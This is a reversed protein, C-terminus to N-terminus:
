HNPLQWATVNAAAETEGAILGSDSIYGASASEGSTPLLNITKGHDLVLSAFVGNDYVYALMQGRDNIAVPQDAGLTTLTGDQWLFGENSGTGGAAYYGVVQGEDNFGNADTGVPLDTTKGHDWVYAYIASGSPTEANVLVQGSDNVALPVGPGLDVVKGNIWAVAESGGSATGAYGIVEGKQNLGTPDTYTGGLGPLTTMKGNQWMVASANGASSTVTGVIRGHDNIYSAISSEGSPGLDTMTGNHWVFAQPTNPFTDTSSYGVVDGHNDVATADAYDAGPLEGLDTITGAHWIFAHALNNVNYGGIVDGRDNVATAWGSASVQVGAVSTTGQAPTAAAALTSAGLVAATALGTISLARKM